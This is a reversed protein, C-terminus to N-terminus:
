FPILDDDPITNKKPPASAPKESTRGKNALEVVHSVFADNAWAYRFWKGDDMKTAPWSVFEKGEYERISCGKISLFADEGEKKAINVSFTKGSKSWEISVKM